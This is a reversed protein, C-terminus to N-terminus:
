DEKAIADIIVDIAAGGLNNQMLKITGLAVRCYSLGAITVGRTFNIDNHGPYSGSGWAGLWGDAQPKVVKINFWYEEGDPLGLQVPVEKGPVLRVGTVLRKKFEQMDDEDGEPLKFNPNPDPNGLRALLSGSYIPEGSVPHPIFPQAHHRENPIHSLISVGWRMGNDRIWNWATLHETGERTGDGDLDTGVTDFAAYAYIGSAWTREIHLSSDPPAFQKPDRAYNEEQQQRSRWGGGIGVVGGAAKMMPFFRRVFEPHCRPAFYGYVRQYPWYTSGYFVPYLIEGTVPDKMVGTM